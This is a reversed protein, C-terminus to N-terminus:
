EAHIKKGEKACEECCANKRGWANIADLREEKREIVRNVASIKWRRDM